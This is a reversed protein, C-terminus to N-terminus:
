NWRRERRPKEFEKVVDAHAIGQNEQNLGSRVKSLLIVREVFEDLDMEETSMERLIRQIDDKSITAPM